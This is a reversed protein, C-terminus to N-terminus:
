NILFDIGCSYWTTSSFCNLTIAKDQDSIRVVYSFCAKHVILIKPPFLPPSVKLVGEGYLFSKGKGVVTKLHKQFSGKIVGWWRWKLCGESSGGEGDLVWEGMFIKIM